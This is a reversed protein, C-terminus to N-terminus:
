KKLLYRKEGKLSVKIAAEGDVPCHEECLGCGACKAPNVIPRDAFDTYIAGVPCYELCIHCDKNFKWVLCKNRNIKSTGMKVEDPKIKRIAGSPCVNGCEMCIICGAQRPIIQPTGWKLLGNGAPTSKLCNAPCVKICEGCRICAYVFDDEIISGPPRIGNKIKGYKKFRYRGGTFVFLSAFGILKLFERRKLM